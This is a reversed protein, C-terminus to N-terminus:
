LREMGSSPLEGAWLAPTEAQLDGGPLFEEHFRDVDFISANEWSPPSVCVFIM